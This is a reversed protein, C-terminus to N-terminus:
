GLAGIQRRRKKWRWHCGSGSFYSALSLKTKNDIMKDSGFACLTSSLVDILDYALCTRDSEFKCYLGRAQPFGRWLQSLTCDGHRYLSGQLISVTLSLLTTLAMQNNNEIWQRREFDHSVDLYFEFVGIILECNICHHHHVIAVIVAWWWWPDFM